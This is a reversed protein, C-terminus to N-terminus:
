GLRNISSVGPAANSSYRPSIKDDRSTSTGTGM